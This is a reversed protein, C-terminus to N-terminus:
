KYKKGIGRVYMKGAESGGYTCRVETNTKTDSQLLQTGIRGGVVGINGKKGIASVNAESHAQEKVIYTCTARENLVNTCM